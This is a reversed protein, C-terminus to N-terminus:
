SVSTVADIWYRYGKVFRTLPILFDHFEENRKLHKEFEELLSRACESYSHGSVTAGRLVEVFADTLQWGLMELNLDKWLNHTNRRQVVVPLGYAVYHGLHDAIRRVVYSAWIDDYRGIDPSLFYAPMVERALATNQSDFPCWTGLELGFREPSGKKLGTVYLPRHLRAIADVDPDGKWLGANVIIETEKESMAVPSQRWRQAIPFGRHYFEQNGIEALHQCVNFWGSGSHIIPLRVRHVKGVICHSALYDGDTVLNDDDITIIVRAKREYAMLMGINRRQISDYPLHKGLEPFRLLYREQEEVSVYQVPVGSRRALGDCFRDVEPPTKKDGVVLICADSHKNRLFNDVYGELALPTKITTTVLAVSTGGIVV